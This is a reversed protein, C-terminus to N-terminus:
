CFQKMYFFDMGLLLRAANKGRNFHVVIGRPLRLRFIRDLSEENLLAAALPRVYSPRKQRSSRDAIGVFGVM